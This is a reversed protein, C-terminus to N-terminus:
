GRELIEEYDEPKVTWFLGEGFGCFGFERWYSLLRCPLKHKYKELAKETVPQCDFALGFGKEELFKNFYKDAMLQM